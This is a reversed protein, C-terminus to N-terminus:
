YDRPVIGIFFRCFFFLVTADCAGTILICGEKLRRMYNYKRYLCDRRMKEEKEKEREGLM